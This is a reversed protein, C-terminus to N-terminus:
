AWGGLAGELTNSGGHGPYIVTDKDMHFLRRLSRRLQMASGGPFDTRGFGGDFLTDGTFAVRHEPLYFSMGGPTHGPCYLLHLHFGCAEMTGEELVSFLCDPEFPQYPDHAAATDLLNLAPDKLMPADQPHIYIKANTRRRVENAALIHDFHGHTLLIHTLTHGSAHVAEMIRECHDGPDVLLADSREPCYVLYANEQYAGALVPVIAIPQEMPEM